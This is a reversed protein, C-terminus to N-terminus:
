EQVSQETYSKFGDKFGDAVRDWSFALSLILVIVFSIMMKENTSLDKFKRM